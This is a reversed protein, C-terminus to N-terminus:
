LALNDKFYMAPRGALFSLLSMKTVAMEGVGAPSPLVVVVTPRPSASQLIPLFLKIQKRSGESPGTNPMFPPAVPPPMACTTGMSSMLRCKVPSKPAMPNACLRSAAMNSLWIWWPLVKFISVRRMAQFRTMSMFSRAKRWITTPRPPVALPTGRSSPKSMTTAESTMAMKQRAVLRASKFVRRPRM